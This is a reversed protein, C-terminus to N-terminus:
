YNTKFSIKERFPLNQKIGLWLSRPVTIKQIVNLYIAIENEVIEPNLFDFM